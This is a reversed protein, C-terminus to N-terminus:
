FDLTPFRHESWEREGWSGVRVQQHRRRLPPLVQAEALEEVAHAVAAWVGGLQTGVEAGEPLVNDFYM